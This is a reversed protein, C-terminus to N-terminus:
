QLLRMTAAGMRRSANYAQVNASYLAGVYVLDAMEKVLSVNPLQVFGDPGADPHNPRYMVEGLSPDEVVGVLRVAGTEIGQVKMAAQEEPPVATFVAIKRRYPGGGETRTTQANAINSSILEMQLRNARLGSMSNEVAEGLGAWAVGMGGLWMGGLVGMLVFGHVVWKKGVMWNNM